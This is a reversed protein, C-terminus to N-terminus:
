KDSEVVAMMLMPIQRLQGDFLPLVVNLLDTIRLGDARLARKGMMEGPFHADTLVIKDGHGM